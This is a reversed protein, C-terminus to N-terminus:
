YYREYARVIDYDKRSFSKRAARRSKLIKDLNAIALLFGRIFGFDGRMTHKLLYYPLRLFHSFLLGADTVNKWFFIMQNRYSIKKIFNGKFKKKISGEEHEHVVISYKEFYIKYGSKLARYSIDIDEWYFPNYLEDFGGLKDWIKKRFAGSGGSVWLTDTKDVEGRSHVLFGNKFYGVGRGRLVKKGDEISEDMCGVAFVQEEDFRRLLPALFDKKPAVDTNLLILIDGTAVRAGRNVNKAFGREKKDNNYVTAIKISKNDANKIFRSTVDRSKDTSCDDAIIVEVFGERYDSVADLVKPLNKNLLKEGNYNPIIVSLNM